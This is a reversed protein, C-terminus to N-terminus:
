ISNKFWGDPDILKNLKQIIKLQNEELVKIRDKLTENETILEQIGKICIPTVKGYDMGMYDPIMELFCDADCHIIKRM